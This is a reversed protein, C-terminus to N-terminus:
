PCRLFTLRQRYPDFLPSRRRLPPSLAASLKGLRPDRRLNDPLRRPRFRFVPDNFPAFLRLRHRGDLHVPLAESFYTAIQNKEAPGNEPNGQTDTVVLDVIISVSNLLHCHWSFANLDTRLLIQAIRLKSEKSSPFFKGLLRHLAHNRCGM